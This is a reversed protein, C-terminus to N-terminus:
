GMFIAAVFFLVISCLVYGVYAREPSADIFDGSTKANVQKRLSVTLVLLGICAFFAALFSNFPFTGVLGAYGFIIIAVSLLYIIFMDIIKVRKSSEKQYNSYLTSVIALVSENQM